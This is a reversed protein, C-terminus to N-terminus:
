LAPPKQLNVILSRCEHYLGNCARRFSLWFVFLGLLFILSAMLIVAFVHVSVPRANDFFDRVFVASYGLGASSLLAIFFAWGIALRIIREEREAHGIRAALDRCQESSQSQMLQRFFLSQQQRESM